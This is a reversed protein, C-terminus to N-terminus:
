GIELATARWRGRHAEIRVAAARVREGDHVVVSAEATGPGLRCLHVRRVVAQRVLTPRGKIRLALGARRAVTEYLDASLWRALQATPRSGTLVEVAARVIAGCWAEPDETPITTPLTPALPALAAVVDAERERAPSRRPTALRVGDWTEPSTRPAAAPAPPRRDQPLVDVTQASM